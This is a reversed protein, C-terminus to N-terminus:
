SKSQLAALPCSRRLLELSWAPPAEKLSRTTGLGTELRRQALLEDVQTIREFGVFTRDPANPDCEAYIEVLSYRSTSNPQAIRVLARLARKGDSLDIQQPAETLTVSRGDYTGLDLSRSGPSAPSRGNALPLAFRGCGSLSLVVLALGVRWPMERVVM